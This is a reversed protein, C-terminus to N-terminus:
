ITAPKREATQQIENKDILITYEVPGRIAYCCLLTKWEVRFFIINSQNSSSLLAFGLQALAPLM